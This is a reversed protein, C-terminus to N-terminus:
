GDMQTTTRVPWLREATMRAKFDRLVAPRWDEYEAPLNWAPGKGAIFDDIFPVLVELEAASIRVTFATVLFWSLYSCLFNIVQWRPDDRGIQQRAWQAVGAVCNLEDISKFTVPEKLRNGLAYIGFIVLSVGILASIYGIVTMRM